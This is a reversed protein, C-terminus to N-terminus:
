RYEVNVECKTKPIFCGSLSLPGETSRGQGMGKGSTAVGRFRSLRMGM